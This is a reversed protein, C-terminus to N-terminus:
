PKEEPNNAQDTKIAAALQEEFASTRGTKKAIFRALRRTMRAYLSDGTPMGPGSFMGPNDSM